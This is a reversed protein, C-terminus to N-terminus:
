FVTPVNFGMPFVQSLATWSLNQSDANIEKRIRILSKVEIRIRICPALGIRIWICLVPWSRRSKKITLLEPWPYSDINSGPQNKQSLVSYEYGWNESATIDNFYLAVSSKVYNFRVKNNNEETNHIRIRVSGCYDPEEQDPDANPIRIQMTKTRQIWIRM